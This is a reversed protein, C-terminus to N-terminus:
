SETSCVPIAASPPSLLAFLFSVFFCILYTCVDRHVAPVLVAAMQHGGLAVCTLQKKMPNKKLFRKIQKKSM